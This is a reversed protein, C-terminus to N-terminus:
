HLCAVFSHNWHLIFPHIFYIFATILPFPCPPCRSSVIISFVLRTYKEITATKSYFAASETPQRNRKHQRDRKWAHNPALINIVAEPSGFTIRHPLSESIKRLNYDLCTYEASSKGNEDGDCVTKQNQISSPRRVSGPDLLNHYLFPSLFM